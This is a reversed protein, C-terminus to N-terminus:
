FIYRNTKIFLSWKATFLKKNEYTPLNINLEQALAKVWYNLKDRVDQSVEKEQSLREAFEIISPVDKKNKYNNELFITKFIALNKSNILEPFSGFIDQSKSSNELTIKCVKNLIDLDIESFLLFANNFQETSIPCHNNEIGAHGLISFLTDKITKFEENNPREECLGEILEELRNNAESWKILNQVFQTDNNGKPIIDLSIEIDELFIELDSKDTFAKLIAKRLQKRQEGTLINSM